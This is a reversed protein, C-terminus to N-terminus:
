RKAKTRTTKRQATAVHLGFSGGKPKVLKEFDRYRLRITETHTGANCVIEDSEALVKDVIVPTKYLNGFISMAGVEIDPFAQKIEAETALRLTKTRLATKLKAFNVLHVAPLIALTFGTATKVLVCKALQRGPVHEEAAIEQATYALPHKQSKYKIKNATLFTKLAASIAM